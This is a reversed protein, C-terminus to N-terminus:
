SRITSSIGAVTGDEDNFGNFTVTGTFSGSDTQVSGTESVWVALYVNESAGPALPIKSTLGSDSVANYGAIPFGTTASSGTAWKLNPVTSANLTLEGEVYYKTTTTNTITITYVQCLTNTGDTCGATISTQLSTDLIPILSGSASSTKGVTLTLPNASYASEGRIKTSEEATAAFYAYTAGAIAVIVTLIGIGLFAIGKKDKSQKIKNEEM